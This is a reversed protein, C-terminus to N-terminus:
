EEPYFCLLSPDACGSPKDFWVNIWVEPGYVCNVCVRVSVGVVCGGVVCVCVVSLFLRCWCSVRVEM